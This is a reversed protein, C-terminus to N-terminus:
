DKLKIKLREVEFDKRKIPISSTESKMTLELKSYYDGKV